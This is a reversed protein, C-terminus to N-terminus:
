LNSACITLYTISKLRRTTRYFSHIGPYSALFTPSTQCSFYKIRYKIYQFTSRFDFIYLYIFIKMKFQNCHSSENMMDSARKMHAQSKKHRKLQTENGTSYSCIECRYPKEGTHKRRHRNMNYASRFTHDCFDCSFTKTYVKTHLEIHNRLTTRRTFAKDCYECKFPREGTHTQQHSILLYKNRFRPLSLM